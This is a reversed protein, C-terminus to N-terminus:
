QWAAISELPRTARSDVRALDSSPGCNGAPERMWAYHDPRTGAAAADLCEVRAPARPMKGLLFDLSGRPALWDQALLLAHVPRSVGALAAELDSALGAAAYRGGVLRVWRM